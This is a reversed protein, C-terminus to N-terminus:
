KPGQRNANNGRKLQLEIQRSVEKQLGTAAKQTVAAIIAPANRFVDKISPGRLEGIPLRPVLPAGRRRVIASGKKVGIPKRMFVGKHGTPMTAIFARPIRKRKGEKEIRYSVGGQKKLERAGFEILPIRRASLTITGFWKEFTAKLIIMGRRATTVKVKIEGAIQRASETRASSLVKNISRSMVRPMGDRIGALQRELHKIEKDDIVVEVLAKAM